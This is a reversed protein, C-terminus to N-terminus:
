QWAPHQVLNKNVDLEAQPIPFVESSKGNYAPAYSRANDAQSRQFAEEVIGWRKIDMFRLGEMALEVRREHRVIEVMESASVPGNAGEVEDVKPMNVRQRVMDVMSAAGTVDGTEAMAEARMLLVDAYRVIYFDQSGFDAPPNGEADPGNRIYKRLAYGTKSQGKRFFYDPDSMFQDGNFYVTALLRPDRSAKENANDYGSNPDTIPLGNTMYYDRVLNKMPRIDAKPNKPYTAAFKEGNNSDDGRLFRVSFVIEASTESEPTFLNAYNDHLSYNLGMAQQTLNLVGHEGSYEKNYLQVRAFLGLAAGKTAYGFQNGPRDNPLLTVAKKLDEAVQAYIEGYSNKAVYAEELIQPETILPVDEFYVSLNFYFLARLFYAQGLLDNKSVEPVLDQSIEKTNQIVANVRNIARYSANWHNRFFVHNSLLTGEMFKGPGEWEFQNYANDSLCDYAPYGQTANLAGRYLIGSQLVDYVGNLALYADSESKWFNEEAIATESARELFNDSCGLTIFILVFLIVTKKM